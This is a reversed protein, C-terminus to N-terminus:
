ADGLSLDILIRVCVWVDIEKDDLYDAIQATTTLVTYNMVKDKLTGNLNKTM